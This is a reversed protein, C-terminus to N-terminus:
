STEWAWKKRRTAASFTSTSRGTRASAEARETEADFLAGAKGGSVLFRFGAGGRVGEEDIGGAFEAVPVGEGGDNEDAFAEGGGATLVGDLGHEGAPGDDEARVHFVEGGDDGAPEGGVSGHLDAGGGFEAGLEGAEEGVGGAAGREGVAGKGEGRLVCTGGGAGRFLKESRGSIM